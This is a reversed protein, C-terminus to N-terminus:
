SLTAATLNGSSSLAVQEGPQVTLFREDPWPGGLLQRLFEPEGQLRVFEWNLHSACQRCYEEAQANRTLDVYAARDHHAFAESDAEILDDIMEPDDAYKESYLSRLHQERDPGPVRRGRVWGPSYFYTAPHEKLVAAHPEIGGLLVSICDHARPLV